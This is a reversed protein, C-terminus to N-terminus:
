VQGERLLAAIGRACEQTIPPTGSSSPCERPQQISFRQVQFNARCSERHHVHNRSRQWGQSDQCHVIQHVSAQGRSSVRQCSCFLSTSEFCVHQKLCCFFELPPHSAKYISSSRSTLSCGMAFAKKHSRQVHKELARKWPQLGVMRWPVPEDRHMEWDDFWTLWKVYVDAVRSCDTFDVSYADTTQPQYAEWVRRSPPRGVQFFRLEVGKDWTLDLHGTEFNDLFSILDNSEDFLSPVTDLVQPEQIHAPPIGQPTYDGFVSAMIQDMSSADMLTPELTEVVPPPDPLLMQPTTQVPPDPLFIQPTM